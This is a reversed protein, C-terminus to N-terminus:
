GRREHSLEVGSRLVWDIQSPRPPSLEVGSNNNDEIGGTSSPSSPSSSASAERSSRPPNQSSREPDPEIHISRTEIKNSRNPNTMRREEEEQDTPKLKQEQIKQEPSTYIRNTKTIITQIVTQINSHEDEEDKKNPNITNM